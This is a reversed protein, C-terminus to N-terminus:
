RRASRRRGSCISSRGGSGTGSIQGTVSSSISPSGHRVIAVGADASRSRVAVSSSTHSMSWRRGTAQREALLHRLRALGDRASLREIRRMPTFEAWPYAELASSSSALTTAPWMQRQEAAQRVPAPEVLLGRGPTIAAAADGAPRIQTSAPTFSGLVATQFIGLQRRRDVISGRYAPPARRHDPQLFHHHNEVQV